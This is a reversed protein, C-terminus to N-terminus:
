VLEAGHRSSFYIIGGAFWKGEKRFLPSPPNKTAAGRHVGYIGRLGKRHVHGVANPWRKAPMRCAARIGQLVGKFFASTCPAFVASKESLIRVPIVLFISPVASTSSGRKELSPLPSIKPRRRAICLIFGWKFIPLSFPSFAGKIKPFHVARMEAGM